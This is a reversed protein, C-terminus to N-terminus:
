GRMERALGDQVLATHLRVSLAGLQRAVDEARSRGEGQRQRAMPTIVQAVLGVERDAAVKFARLHRAEIGFGTLERVTQCVSLATANFYSTGPTPAVLGYDLLRDLLDEDIDAETVLEQRSLRLDPRNIAMDDASPMPEAVSLTRPVRTGSPTPELGRDLADLEERIVKLPLYRDRQASLVYRLREVDDTSFKRYGSATRMPAVLGESELFRIKSITIDPFQDRLANLVDGISLLQRAPIASM